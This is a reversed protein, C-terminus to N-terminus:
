RQPAYTTLDSALRAFRLAWDLDITQLMDGLHRSWALYDAVRARLMSAFYHLTQNEDGTRRGRALDSLSAPKPGHWHLLAADGRWPWYPKYNCLPTLRQLHAGYCANLAYQDDYNATAGSTINAIIEAEFAQYSARMAAVNLVMVCSNFYRWDDERQEPAAAILAPREAAWDHRRLFIVDCDTYLVHTDRTEIQPIMVRLWHGITLPKFTGARAAQEALDWFPPRIEIITVGQGRMWDCLATPAGHYLLVPELGGVARASLVALRAFEGTEGGAGQEDIAFYWRVEAWRRCRECFMKPTAM